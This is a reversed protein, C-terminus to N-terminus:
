GYDWQQIPCSHRLGCPKLDGLQRPRGHHGRFIEYEWEWEAVRQEASRMWLYTGLSCDSYYGIEYTWYTMNKKGGNAMRWEGNAGGVADLM